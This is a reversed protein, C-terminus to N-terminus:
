VRFLQRFWNVFAQSEPKEPDLVRHAVAQHLQKGPEDQWALWIHITAKTRHVEKFPAGHQEAEAVCNKAVEFLHRSNEPILQGLFNEMMGSFRNDPMIWVGFRPGVSHAVNLGYEPIEDPLDDFQDRIRNKIQNWRHRADGNADVLVGLAELESARLEAGIVGPKLLEDIGDHPEIHVVHQDGNEWAVGNAEMLYPIVRKDANGEVLLKKPHDM